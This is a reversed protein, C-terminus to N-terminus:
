RLRRQRLQRQMGYGEPQLPGLSRGFRGIHISRRHAHRLDSSWPCVGNCRAHICICDRPLQKPGERAHHLHSRLAQPIFSSITTAHHPVQLLLVNPTRITCHIWVWCSRKEIGHVTGRYARPLVVAHVRLILRLFIIKSSM